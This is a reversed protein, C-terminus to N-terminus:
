GLLKWTEINFNKETKLCSLCIPLHFVQELGDYSSSEVMIRDRPVWEDLRNYLFKFLSNFLTSFLNNFFSNFFSLYHSFFFQQLLAGATSTRTTSTSSASSAPMM